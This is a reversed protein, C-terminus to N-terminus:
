PTTIRKWEKVVVWIKLETQTIFMWKVNQVMYDKDLVGLYPKDVLIKEYPEPSEAFDSIKRGIIVRKLDNYIRKMLETETVKDLPAHDAMEVYVNLLNITNRQNKSKKLDSIEGELKTNELQLVHNQEIMRNLNLKYISMFLAAGIVGGAVLLGTYRLMGNMQGSSPM